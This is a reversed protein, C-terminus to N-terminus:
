RGINMQSVMNELLQTQESRSQELIEAQRAERIRNSLDMLVRWSESDVRDFFEAIEPPPDHSSDEDIRNFIDSM